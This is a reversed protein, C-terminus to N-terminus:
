LGLGIEQDDGLLQTCRVARSPGGQDPPAPDLIHEVRKNPRKQMPLHYSHKVHFVRVAACRKSGAGAQERYRASSRPIEIDNHDAAAMGPQSAAAAEARRPARVASMVNSSPWIPAIDHL